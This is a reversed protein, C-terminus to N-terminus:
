EGTPVFWILKRFKVFSLDYLSLEVELWTVSLFRRFLCAYTFRFTLNIPALASLDPHFMFYFRSIFFLFTTTSIKPQFVIIKPLPLIQSLMFSSFQNPFAIKFPSFWIKKLQFKQSHFFKYFLLNKQTFFAFFLFNRTFFAFIPINRISILLFIFNQHLFNYTFFFVLLFNCTCSFGSPFNCACPFGSPFNCACPFGLSFNALVPFDQHFFQM